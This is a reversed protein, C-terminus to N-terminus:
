KHNKWGSLLARGRFSSVSFVCFRQSPKEQVSPFLALTFRLSVGVVGGGGPWSSRLLGGVSQGHQPPVAACLVPARRGWAEPCLRHCRKMSQPCPYTYSIAGSFPERLVQTDASSKNVAPLGPLM